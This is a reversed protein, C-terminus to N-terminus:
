RNATLPKVTAKVTQRLSKGDASQLLLTVPITDGPKVPTKVLDMLMIHLGGPKLELARDPGIDVTSVARMVMTDNPGMTMQHIEVIGAAPSEAGVIRLPQTARVTMYAATAMQGAGAAKVWANEVMVQAHAAFVAGLLSGVILLRSIRFCM